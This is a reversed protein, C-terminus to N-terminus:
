KLVVIKGKLSHGLNGLLSYMYIGNELGSITLENSGNRFGNTQYKLSGDISMLIFDFVEDGAHLLSLNVSGDSPNPFVAASVILQKNQLKISSGCSIDSFVEGTTARLIGRSRWVVDGYVAPCLSAIIELEEVQNNTLTDVGSLFSSLLVSNLTKMSQEIDNEPQISSNLTTIDDFLNTYDQTGFDYESMLSVESNIQHLVEINSGNMEDVYGSIYVGYIISTTTTGGYSFSCGAIYANNASSGTFAAYVGKKNDTFDVNLVEVIANNDSHVGYNANSISVPCYSSGLNSGTNFHLEDAPSNNSGDIYIGQWTSNCCTFITQLSTTNSGDINVIAQGTGATGINFKVGAAIRFVCDHINYTGSKFNVVGNAGTVDILTLTGVSGITGGGTLNYNGGGTAWTISATGSCQANVNKM